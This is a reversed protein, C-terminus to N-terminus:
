RRKHGKGRMLIEKIEDKFKKEFVLLKAQQEVSLLDSISNLFKEKEYEISKEIEFYERILTNLKNMDSNNKRVEDEMQRIRTEAKHKLDYIKNKHDSRRSFFRISTEEDLKLTEILKVRELEEIKKIADRKIERKDQALGACSFFMVLSFFLLFKKM